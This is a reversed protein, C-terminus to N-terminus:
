LVEMMLSILNVLRDLERCRAIARPLYDRALGSNRVVAAITAPENSGVLAYCMVQVQGRSLPLGDTWRENSCSDRCELDNV